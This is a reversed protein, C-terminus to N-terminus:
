GLTVDGERIYELVSLVQQVYGAAVLEAAQVVITRYPVAKDAVSTRLADETETTNRTLPQTGGARHRAATKLYDPLTRMVAYQLLGRDLDTLRSIDGHQAISPIVHSRLHSDLAQYLAWAWFADQEQGTTAAQRLADYLQGTQFDLSEIEQKTIMMPSQNPMM